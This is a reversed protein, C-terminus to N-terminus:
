GLMGPTVTNRAVEGHEEHYTIALAQRETTWGGRAAYADRAALTSHQVVKMGPHEKEDVHHRHGVHVYRKATAGWMESFQAAFFLPLAENKKIHGHHFALMTRGHRYVYYPLESDNVTVRPEREYLAKFMHRLWLSSVIDHNGEALIVHVEDHTELARDIVRRLIRLAVAVIKSFRTDSDLIHGHTPTVPSMSDQHLFDGLQNVVAVRARPAAVVMHEFSRTLVDEAIKLDWDEGGERRWALMGVHSDTLTFLNCLPSALPDPAAIPELRPLQDAMAAFAERIIQERAQDDARSKVWQGSLEGEKNYYSSVGRVM